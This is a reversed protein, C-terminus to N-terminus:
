AREKRGSPLNDQNVSHQTKVRLLWDCKLVLLLVYAVFIIIFVMCADMKPVDKVVHETFHSTGIGGQTM